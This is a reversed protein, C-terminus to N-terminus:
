DDFNDPGDEFLGPTNGHPPPDMTDNLSDNMIKPHPFLETPRLKANSSLDKGTM